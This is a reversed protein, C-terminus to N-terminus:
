ARVYKLHIQHEKVNRRFEYELVEERIEMLTCRLRSYTTSYLEGKLNWGHSSLRSKVLEFDAPGALLEEDSLDLPMACDSHRRLLRPPRNFLESMAMDTTYAKMFMKRRCEALWEPIDVTNNTEKHLGLALVDNSVDGLRHWVIEDLLIGDTFHM